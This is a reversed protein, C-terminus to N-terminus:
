YTAHIRQRESVIFGISPDRDDAVMGYANYEIILSNLGTFEMEYWKMGNAVWSMLM